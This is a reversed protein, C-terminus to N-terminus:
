WWQVQFIISDRQTKTEEKNLCLWTSRKWLRQNQWQASGGTRWWWVLLRTEKQNKQSSSLYSRSGCWWCHPQLLFSHLSTRGRFSSRQQRHLTAVDTQQNKKAISFNIWPWSPSCNQPACIQNNAGYKKKTIDFITRWKVHPSFVDLARSLNWRRERGKKIDLDDTVLWWEALVLLSSEKVYVM